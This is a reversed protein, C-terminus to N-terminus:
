SRHNRTPTNAIRATSPGAQPPPPERFTAGGRKESDKLPAKGPVLQVAGTTVPEAAAPISGAAPDGIGDRLIDGVAAVAVTFVVVVVAKLLGVTDNETM